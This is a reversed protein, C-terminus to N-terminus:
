GYKRKLQEYLEREADEANGRALGVRLQEAFRARAQYLKEAGGVDFFLELPIRETHVEDNNADDVTVDVWEAKVRFQIVVTGTDEVDNFEPPYMDPDITALIPRVAYFRQLMFARMQTTAKAYAAESLAVENNMVHWTALLDM